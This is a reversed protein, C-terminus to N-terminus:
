LLEGNELLPRVPFSFSFLSPPSPSSTSPHSLLHLSSSPLPLRSSSILLSRLLDAISNDESENSRCAVGVMPPPLLLLFLTHSSLLLSFSFLLCDKSDCQQSPENVVLSSETIFNYMTEGLMPLIRLSLLYPLPLLLLLNYSLPLYTPQSAYRGDLVVSSTGRLLPLVWPGIQKLNALLLPSPSFPLLPSPSFPLLPSTQYQEVKHLKHSEKPGEDVAGTRAIQGRLSPFSVSEQDSKTDTRVSGETSLPSFFSHTIFLVVASCNSCVVLSLKGGTSAKGLVFFHNPALLNPRACPPLVARLSTLGRAPFLGHM